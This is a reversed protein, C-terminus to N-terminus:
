PRADAGVIVTVMRAPQLVRQFAARVRDATVAEVRQTWTDLYDLPLGYWAINAVNAILKRNSDLRLPFGQILNAKAATMEADTPGEAVFQELEDRVIRLSEDAQDKRTQVSIQFPGPQWFPAFGSGIGYTLGRKERVEVTLRSTFSGGGLIHNGVLIAFFDPDSRAIGPQGILVHAQQAPHPIRIERAATLPKVPVMETTRDSAHGTPAYDSTLGRPLGATLQEAIQEAQARNIAGILTVVAQTAAYRRQHFALLDKRTIAQVSEPTPVFGYPHDGYVATAFAREALTAPRTLTERLGASIRAKERAVMDSPYAPRSIIQAVLAVAAEREKAASLTRLQVTTRDDSAGASFAAGLDAFADALEGESRAAAGGSALTGKDLLGATMSALGVKDRPDLRSGADFDINVDLMPISPSPVFYVRAGSAATWHQIPLAAHAVSTMCLIIFTTGAAIWASFSRHLKM